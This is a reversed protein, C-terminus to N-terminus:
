LIIIVIHTNSKQPVNWIAVMIKFVGSDLICVVVMLFYWMVWYGYVM